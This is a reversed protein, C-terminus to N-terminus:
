PCHLIDILLFFPITALLSHSFASVERSNQNASSGILLPKGDGYSIRL